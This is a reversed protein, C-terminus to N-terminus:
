KRAMLRFTLNILNEALGRAEGASITRDGGHPRVITVGDSSTDGAIHLMFHSGKETVKIVLANDAYASKLAAILTRALTGWKTRGRAKLTSLIEERFAAKKAKDVDTTSDTTAAPMVKPPAAKDKKKQAKSRDKIPAESVKLSIATQEERILDNYLSDIHTELISAPPASVAEVGALADPSTTSLPDGESPNDELAHLYSAIFAGAFPAGGRPTEDMLEELFAAKFAQDEEPTAPLTIVANLEGPTLRCHRFVEQELLTTTVPHKRGIRMTIPSTIFGRGPGNEQVFKFINAGGSTTIYVCPSTALTGDVFVVSRQLDDGWNGYPMPSPYIVRTLAGQFPTPVIGTKDRLWAIGLASSQGYPQTLALRADKEFEARKQAWGLTQTIMEQFKLFHPHNITHYHSLTAKRPAAIDIFCPTPKKQSEIVRTFSFYALAVMQGITDIAANKARLQDIRSLKSFGDKFPACFSAFGVEPFTAECNTRLFSALQDLSSVETRSSDGAGARTAALTDISTAAYSQAILSATTLLTITTLTKM